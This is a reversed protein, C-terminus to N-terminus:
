EWALWERLCQETRAPDEEPVFHGTSAARTRLRPFHHVFSRTFPDDAPFHDDPPLEGAPAAAFARPVLYRGYLLLTPGDFGLRRDEPAFRPYWTQNPQTPTSPAANWEAAVQQASVFVAPADPPADDDSRHFPLADRYSSIANFWVDSDDFVDAFHAVDEETWFRTADWSSRPALWPFDPWGGSEFTRGAFLMAIFDRAHAAFFQEPRPEDKFWWGHVAHPLWVSCLTDILALRRVRHPHQLAVASAIIGGWDHGVLSVRDIELADLLDVIDRALLQRTVRERPKDTGGCGRTDAAICRCDSSMSRLHHRWMWSDQPFGHLFLVPEGEGAERVLFTLSRTPVHRTRV